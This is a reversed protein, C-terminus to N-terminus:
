ATLAFFRASRAFSFQLIYWFFSAKFAFTIKPFYQEYDLLNDLSRSFSGHEVFQFAILIPKGIKELPMQRFTPFPVISLKQVSLHILSHEGLSCNSPGILLISLLIVTASISWPLSHFQFASEKSSGVLM